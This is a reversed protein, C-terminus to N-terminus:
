VSINRCVTECFHGDAVNSSCPHTLDCFKDAGETQRYFASDSGCVSGENCVSEEYASGEACVYFTCVFLCVCISYVSITSERVNVM